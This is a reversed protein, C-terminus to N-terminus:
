LVCRQVSLFPVPCVTIDVEGGQEWGVSVGCTPCGTQVRDKCPLITIGMKCLAVGLSHELDQESCWLGQKEKRSGVREPPPKSPAVM